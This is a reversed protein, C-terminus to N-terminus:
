LKEAIRLKASRARVNSAVEGKGAEIAKKTIVKWPLDTNGYSDRHVEGEFNGSRFFRKVLRDELSHYSMVVMRGGPGLVKLSDLLMEKLANIEDNVEIRLAQFVQSLYKNRNGISLTSLFEIFDSITSFAAQRRRQVIARSLRKANRVEGYQSLLILLDKEEYHNLIHAATLPNSRNMRMDLTGGLMYSFGRERVDIQHSSIGLDAIIGDAGLAQELRCFKHLYRFNYPVLLFRPDDIANALADDDQDFVILRGKAGLKNMIARSHGGGGFTVDIYTGDKKINLGELCEDLMVPVHYEM